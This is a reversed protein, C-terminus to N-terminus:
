DAYVVVPCLVAFPLVSTGLLALAAPFAATLRETGKRRGSLFVLRAVLLPM